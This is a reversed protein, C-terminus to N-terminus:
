LRHACRVVGQATAVAPHGSGGLGPSICSTFRSRSYVMDMDRVSTGTDETAVMCGRLSTLFEGYDQSRLWGGPPPM